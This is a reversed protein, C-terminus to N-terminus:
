SELIISYYLTLTTCTTCCFVSNEASHLSRLALEQHWKDGNLTKLASCRNDPWLISLVASLFKVTATPEQKLNNPMLIICWIKAAIKKGGKNPLWIYVLVVFILNLNTKNNLKFFVLCCVARMLYQSDIEEAWFCIKLICKILPSCCIKLKVSPTIQPKFCSKLRKLLGLLQSIGNDKQWKYPIMGWKEVYTMNYFPSSYFDLASGILYNNWACFSLDGREWSKHPIDCQMVRGM